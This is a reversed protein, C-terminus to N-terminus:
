QPHIGLAQQRGDTLTPRQIHNPCHAWHTVVPHCPLLGLHHYLHLLLKWAEGEAVAPLNAAREPERCGGLWVWGGVNGKFRLLM